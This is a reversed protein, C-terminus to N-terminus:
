NHPRTCFLRRKNGNRAQKQVFLMMEWLMQGAKGWLYLRGQWINRMLVLKSISNKVGLPVIQRQANLEWSYWISSYQFKIQFPSVMNSIAIRSFSCSMRNDWAHVKKWFQFSTKQRDARFQPLLPQSVREPRNAVTKNEPICCKVIKCLWRKVIFLLIM